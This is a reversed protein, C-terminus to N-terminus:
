HAKLTLFLSTGFLVVFIGAAWYYISKFASFGWEFCEAGESFCESAKELNLQWADKITNGLDKYGKGFFYSKIAPQKNKKLM